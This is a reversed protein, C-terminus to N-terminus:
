LLLVIADAYAKAGKANRHGVSARKCIAVNTKASGAIECAAARPGAISTPDEPSSDAHIGYQYSNPALAANEPGFKPDAFFIRPPKGPGLALNAEHVALKLQPTPAKYSCSYKGNCADGVIGTLNGEKQIDLCGIRAETVRIQARAVGMGLLTFSVALALRSVAFGARSCWTVVLSDSAFAKARM